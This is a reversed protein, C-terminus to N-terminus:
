SDTEPVPASAAGDAAPRCPCEELTRHVAGQAPPCALPLARPADAKPAGPAGTGTAPRLGSAVCYFSKPPRTGPSRFHRPTRFPRRGADEALTWAGRGLGVDRGPGRGGAGGGWRGALEETARRIMSQWGLKSGQGKTRRVQTMLDQNNKILNPGLVNRKSKNM